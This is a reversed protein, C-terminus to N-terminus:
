RRDCDVASVIASPSVLIDPDVILFNKDNDVRVVPLANEGEPPLMPELDGPTSSVVHIITGESVVAEYWLGSVRVQHNTGGAQQYPICSYRQSLRYM